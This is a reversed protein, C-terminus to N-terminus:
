EINIIVNGTKNGQMVYDYASAIDKLQYIQDIVATLKGKHLLDDIFPISIKKDVLLPLVVKRKALAM